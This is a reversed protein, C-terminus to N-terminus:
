NMSRDRLEKLFLQVPQLAGGVRLYMIAHYSVCMYQARLRTNFFPLIDSLLVSPTPFFCLYNTVPSPFPLLSLPSPLSAKLFSQVSFSNCLRYFVSLKGRCPLRLPSCVTLLQLFSLKARDTVVARITGYWESYIFKRHEEEQQM